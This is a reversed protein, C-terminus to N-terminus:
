ESFAQLKNVITTINQYKAPDLEYCSKCIIQYHMPLHDHDVAPLLSALRLSGCVKQMIQVSTLDEMVKRQGLLEIILCGFAYVDVATSHHNPGYM